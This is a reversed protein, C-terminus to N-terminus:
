QLPQHAVTPATPFVFAPAPAAAAPAVIAPAAAAVAPSVAAAAPIAVTATPPPPHCPRVQPVPPPASPPLLLCPKALLPRHCYCHYALSAPHIAAAPPGPPPPPTIPLMSFPHNPAPVRSPISCPEHPPTIIISRTATPRTPSFSMPTQSEVYVVLHTSWRAGQAIAM